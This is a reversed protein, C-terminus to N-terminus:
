NVESFFPHLIYGYALVYSNNKTPINQNKKLLCKLKAFIFFGM